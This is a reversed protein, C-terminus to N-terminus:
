DERVDMEIITYCDTAVETKLERAYQDLIQILTDRSLEKETIYLVVESIKKFYLATLFLSLYMM